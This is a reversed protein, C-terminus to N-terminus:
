RAIKNPNNWITVGNKFINVIGNRYFFNSAKRIDLWIDNVKWSHFEEDFNFVLRKLTWVQNLNYGFGCVTCCNTQNSSDSQKIVQVAM